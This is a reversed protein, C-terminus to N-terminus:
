YKKGIIACWTCQVIILLFTVVFTLLSWSIFSCTKLYKLYIGVSINSFIKSKLIFMDLFTEENLFGIHVTNKMKQYLRKM